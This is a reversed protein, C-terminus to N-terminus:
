TKANSFKDRAYRSLVVSTPLLFFCLAVLRKPYTPFQTQLILFWPLYKGYMMSALWNQIALSLYQISNHNKTRKDNAVTSVFTLYFFVGSPITFIRIAFIQWPVTYSIVFTALIGSICIFIAGIPLIIEPYLKKTKKFWTLMLIDLMLFATTILNNYTDDHQFLVSVQHLFNNAIAFSLNSLCLSAFVYPTISLFSSKVSANEPPQLYHYQSNIRWLLALLSLTHAVLFTCNWSLYQVSLASVLFGAVKARDYNSAKDRRMREDPLQVLLCRVIMTEGAVWINCVFRSLFLLLSFVQISLKLLPLTM